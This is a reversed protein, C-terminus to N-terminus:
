EPTWGTTYHSNQTFKGPEEDSKVSPNFTLNQDGFTNQCLVARERERFNIKQSM